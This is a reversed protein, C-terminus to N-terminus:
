VTALGSNGSLLSSLHYTAYAVPTSFTWDQTLRSTCSSSDAGYVEEPTKYGLRKRSRSNLKRAIRDCDAQTVTSM